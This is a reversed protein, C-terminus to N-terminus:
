ITEDLLCDRCEKVFIQKKLHFAQRNNQIDNPAQSLSLGLDIMGNKEIRKFIFNFSNIFACQYENYCANVVSIVSADYCNLGKYKIPTLKM